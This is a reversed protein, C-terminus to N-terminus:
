EGGVPDCKPITFSFTCGEGPKSDVWITGGHREVTKKCVALGIGTGEYEARTHLRQFIQFVRDFHDPDIGIGNDKVAFRFMGNEHDQCSVHVHPSKDGCFKMGNGILNQLLQGMQTEDAMVTPLPDHTVVAGQDEIQMKLSRIVRQVVKEMDTPALEKGRTGVRSYTLLDTILKKMRTAGDVAFDIFENAKDDLEKGYRRQLIQCYSTITRLPEQLDHSAVYAFQQLEENSRGLEDNLSQLEVKQAEIHATREEVKHELTAALQQLQAFGQANELAAGAITAIFEALRQEDEAFLGSVERHDVYFCGAPEGRAFVPACLASRVGALLAEDEQIQADSLVIVQGTALARDAVDRIYEKDLEGSAKTLDEDADDDETRVLLCRQGRLLRQAAERVEQFITERSLQSAIRRGADLVTDFRDVLSLTPAEEPEPEPTVKEDLAFDAGLTHLTERATALDEDAGPWDVELGVRGRALLTQAHEFKAGQREAVELSEDLLKRAKRVRGRMAAVLGAERLAHPLDTKFKRAIRVAKRAFRSANNLLQFRRHPVLDTSRQWQLRYVTALWPLVPGVWPNMGGDRCIDYAQTLVEIAETLERQRVRRVAEALLVLVSAWVDNRQKQMERQCVDAPVRGGSARSWIDLAFGSGKDDGMEVCVEYLPPAETAARALDGKRYLSNVISYGAINREWFDGTQELLRVAQRCASICDDYKAGAFLVVGLYHLSQGQGCLDGLRKRIELSKKAYLEGRRLWPILSMVPAHSAWAFGLERTPPYREALNVSRLHAWLCPVKGREFFYARTLHVYLDAALLEEEAAKLNHRALFLKPFMTHFTQVLLERALFLLVGVASSPVRRGLLRLSRELAECSTENDGEKFALIGLKAETQARTVKDRALLSAAQFMQAAPPYLGRLMLVDGLGEAIKYRTIDDLASVGRDAIRYQQEALEFANHTRADEAAAMAYPLAQQSEGAADFHYALEYVRDRSEKEVGRAARLHLDKRESEPMRDLLTERLKDHVFACRDDNVKSWVIHRQQAERLANIAQTSTQQALKSATFLDFEKGLIAGVSLLKLTTEPLLEIRRALFAGAHRSSQADALAMPEVRWAGAERENARSDPIPVLAESEVLGRLAAAAMFPSGEALREIIAVAHNPLPGAMSEVLKRVNAAPFTPLKLHVASQLARLPHGPPVEESRFAVVVLMPRDSNEAKRQWSRVVQVTLQDAWQCDDLLVLAPRGTGGIAELLSTLAQVSRAEGFDEPGLQESAESGFLTALQPLAACATERHNGLATRINEMVGSDPGAAAVLEDAVGTLVQFPLQAAQDLGQGRLVWIGQRSARVAFEALLRSKGGGSEAELLVLGQQGERARKLQSELIALEEDRGVFAPETLTHRRDHLGVVLDPETEGRQIADAIVSLDEVVAKATQYRDRSDKRLLRQIVEDLVRPVPLGLSRLEPPHATMHQRLVEGVSNGEFPPRGALCEFLVIGTSYLDSCATIDQDLLGAGEPSLYQATGVWQERIGADLNTSHALGFDILTAERLPIDENVIVNAPKIDRHLVNHAHVNSLATLLARGVTLAEMVSLPGHELRARLTVGPILPMVLYIWGNEAGFELLPAFQGEKVHSLVHAEHELRMRISASFSSANTLKVVVSSNSKLDSAVFVDVEQGSKLPRLLQYRGGIVLAEQSGDSDAGGDPPRRSPATTM